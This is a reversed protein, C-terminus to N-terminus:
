DSALDLKKKWPLASQFIVACLSRFHFRFSCVVPRGSPRVIAVPGNNVVKKVNRKERKKVTSNRKTTELGQGRGLRRM